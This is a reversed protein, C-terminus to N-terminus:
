IFCVFVYASIYMFTDLFLIDIITYCDRISILLWGTYELQFKNTQYKIWKELSSNDSYWM